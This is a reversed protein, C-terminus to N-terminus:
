TAPNEETTLIRDPNQHLACRWERAQIAALEAETTYDVHQQEPM